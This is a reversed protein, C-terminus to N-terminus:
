VSTPKNLFAELQSNVEAAADHQAWHSCNALMQIQLDEVHNETGKLVQCSADPFSCFYVGMLM